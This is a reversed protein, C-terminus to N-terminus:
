KRDSRYGCGAVTDRVARSRRTSTCTSPCPKLRAESSPHGVNGGIHPDVRRDTHPARWDSTGPEENLHRDRSASREDAETPTRDRGILEVSEEVFGFRLAAVDVRDGDVVVGVEDQRRARSSMVAVVAAIRGHPEAIGPREDRTM